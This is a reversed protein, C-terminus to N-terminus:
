IVPNRMPTHRCNRTKMPCSQHLICQIDCARVVFVIKYSQTGTIRNKYPSLICCLDAVTIHSVPTCHYSGGGQGDLHFFQAGMKSINRYETSKQNETLHQKKRKESTKPSNNEPLKPKLIYFDADPYLKM